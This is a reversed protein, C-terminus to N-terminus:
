YGNSIRRTDFGLRHGHTLRRKKGRSFYNQAFFWKRRKCPLYQSRVKLTMAIRSMHSVSFKGWPSIEGECQKSMKNPISSTQIIVSRGVIFSTEIKTDSEKRVKVRYDSRRLRSCSKTWERENQSRILIKTSLNQGSAIDVLEVRQRGVKSLFM